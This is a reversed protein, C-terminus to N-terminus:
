GATNGGRELRAAERPFSPVATHKVNPAHECKSEPKMPSLYGSLVNGAASRRWRLEQASVLGGRDRKKVRVPEKTANACLPSQTANM